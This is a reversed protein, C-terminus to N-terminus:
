KVEWWSKLYLVLLGIISVDEFSHVRSLAVYAQGPSFTKTLDVVVSQLTLSQAKHVTM